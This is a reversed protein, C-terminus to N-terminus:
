NKRPDAQIIGLIEEALIAERREAPNEEPIQALLRKAGILCDANRVAEAAEMTMTQITGCGLGVLTVAM